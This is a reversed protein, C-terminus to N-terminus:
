GAGLAVEETITEGDAGIATFSVTQTRTSRDQVFTIEEVASIRPDQFLGDRIEERMEQENPAKGLFAQHDIGLSPDLFWEGRQTSLTLRVCQVLEEGEAVMLLDNGAFVLDGDNVM